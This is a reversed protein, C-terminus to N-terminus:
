AFRGRLNNFAIVSTDPAINSADYASSGLSVRSAAALQVGIVAVSADLSVRLQGLANVTMPNAIYDLLLRISGSLDAVQTSTLQQSAVLQALVAVLQTATAQNGNPSLAVVIAPDTAVPSTNAGLLKGIFAPINM